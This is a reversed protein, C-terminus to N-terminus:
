LHTAPSASPMAVGGGWLFGTHKYFTAFALAEGKRRGKMTALIHFIALHEHGSVPYSSSLWQAVYGVEWSLQM